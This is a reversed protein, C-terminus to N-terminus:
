KSNIQNRLKNLEKGVLDGLSFGTLKHVIQSTPGPQSDRMAEYKNKQKIQARVEKYVRTAKLGNRAATQQLEQIKKYDKNYLATELEAKFKTYSMGSSIPWMGALNNDSFSFPAVKSAVSKLRNGPKAFDLDYGGTTHGSIQEFFIQLAPSLKHGLVKAPNDLWRFPEALAKNLQMYYNRGSRPEKYLWIDFKHDPDNNWSFQGKGNQSLTNMYNLVETTGLFLMVQRAWYKRGTYGKPGGEFFNEAIRLNSATWDLALLGHKLIRNWNPDNFLLEWPQGGAANNIVEAVQRKLLTPDMKPFKKIASAVNQEYAMLKIMPHYASWLTKDWLDEFKAPGKLIAQAVKSNIDKSALRRAAENVAGDIVEAVKHVLGKEVDSVGGLVLGHQLADKSLEPMLHAAGGVRLAKPISTLAKGPNVGLGVAAETLTMHHFMSLSLASKKLTANILSVEAELPLKEIGKMFKLEKYTEPNLAVGNLLPSIQGGDKYSIPINPNDIIAGTKPDRVSKPVVIGSGDPTKMQSIKRIFQNNAVSLNKYRSYARLTDGVNDYKPTLGLEIGETLSPISREQTFPNKVGFKGKIESPAKDLDWIQPLYNEQYGMKNFIPKLEAHAEDTFSKLKIQSAKMAETPNDLLAQLKLGEPTKLWPAPVKGTDMFMLAKNEEPTLGKEIERIAREDEFNRVQINGFREAKASAVPSYQGSTDFAESIKDGVKVPNIIQGSESGMLSPERISDFKSIKDKNLLIAVKHPAKGTRKGGTHTYGDYGLQKIDDSLEMFVDQYEGVPIENYNSVEGIANSFARFIKESSVGPTSAEKQVAELVLGEPDLSGGLSKAKNLFTESIEKPAEKELDLLSANKLNATYVTPTGSAKSRAKAYGEAIGKNNTLYIGQGFLNDIKTMQPNLNDLSLSESGSGHYYNEPFMEDLKKFIEGKFMEATKKDPFQGGVLEGSNTRGEVIKSIYDKTAEPDEAYAKVWETLDQKMHNTRGYKTGFEEAQKIVDPDASLKPTVLGEEPAENAKIADEFLTKYNTEKPTVVEVGEPASAKVSEPKVIEGEIVNGRPLANKVEGAEKPLSSKLGWEQMGLEFAGAVSPFLTNGAFEAGGAVTPQVMDGLGPLPSTGPLRFLEEKSGEPSIAEAAKRALTGPLAAGEYV